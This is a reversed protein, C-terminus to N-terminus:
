MLWNRGGMRVKANEAYIASAAAELASSDQDVLVVSAGEACFIRGTAAGIGAGGGTILATKGKLRM